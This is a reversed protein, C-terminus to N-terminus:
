YKPQDIYVSNTDIRDKGTFLIVDKLNDRFVCENMGIM